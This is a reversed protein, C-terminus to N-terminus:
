NDIIHINLVSILSSTPYHVYKHLDQSWCSELLLKADSDTFHEVTKSISVVYTQRQLDLCRHDSMGMVWHHQDWLDRNWLPDDDTTTCSSVVSYHMQPVALEQFQVTMASWQRRHGHITQIVCTERRWNTRWSWNSTARLGALEINRNQQTRHKESAQNTSFNCAITVLTWFFRIYFTWGSHSKPTKNPKQLSATGDATLYVYFPLIILLAWRNSVAKIVV